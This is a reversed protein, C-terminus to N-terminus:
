RKNSWRYDSRTYPRKYVVSGVSRELGAAIARGLSSGVEDLFDVGGTVSDYFPIYRKNKRLFEPDRAMNERITLWLPAVGEGISEMAEAGTQAHPLVWEGGPGTHVRFLSWAPRKAATVAPDSAAYSTSEDPKVRLLGAASNAGGAPLGVAVNPDASGLGNSANPQLALARANNLNAQSDNAHIQSELVMAQLESLRRQEETMEARSARTLNQGPLGSSGHFSPPPSGGGVSGGGITATPAFAAGGGSMAFLPHLGAAQADATRWQVGHQAFEKQAEYNKQWYMEADRRDMDKYLDQRDQLAANDKRQWDRGILTNVDQRFDSFAGQLIQGIM